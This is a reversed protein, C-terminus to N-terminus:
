ININRVQEDSVEDELNERIKFITRRGCFM